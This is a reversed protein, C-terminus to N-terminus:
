LLCESVSDFKTRADCAIYPTKLPGNLEDDQM